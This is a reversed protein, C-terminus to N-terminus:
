TTNSDDRNYAVQDVDKELGDRVITQKVLDVLFVVVLVLVAVFLQLLRLKSQDFNNNGENDRQRTHRQHSDGKNEFDWVDYLTTDAVSENTENENGKNFLDGLVEESDIFGVVVLDVHRQSVNETGRDLCSQEVCRENDQDAPTNTHGHVVVKGDEVGNSQNQGNQGDAREETVSLRVVQLTYQTYHDVDNNGNAGEVERVRCFVTCRSATGCLTTSRLATM